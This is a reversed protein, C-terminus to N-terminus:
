RWARLAEQIRIRIAENRIAVELFDLVHLCEWMTLGPGSLYRGDITMGNPVQENQMFVFRAESEVFQFVTSLAL